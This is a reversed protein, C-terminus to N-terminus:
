LGRRMKYCYSSLCEFFAHRCGIEYWPFRVQQFDEGAEEPKVGGGPVADTRKPKPAPDVVYVPDSFSIGYRPDKM